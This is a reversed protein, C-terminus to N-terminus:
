FNNERKKKISKLLSQQFEIFYEASLRIVHVVINYKLNAQKQYKRKHQIHPIYNVHKASPSLTSVSCEKNHDGIPRTRVTMVVPTQSPRHNETIIFMM